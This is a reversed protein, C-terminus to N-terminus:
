LLNEDLKRKALNMKYYRINKKWVTFNKWKRYRQFFQLKMIGDYLSYEHEFHELTTFDSEGQSVRTIGTQSLTFFESRDIEAPKAPELHYPNECSRKLYQFGGEFLVSYNFIPHMYMKSLFSSKSPFLILNRLSKEDIGTFMTQRAQCLESRLAPSLKACETIDYIRKQQALKVDEVMNCVRERGSRTRIPKKNRPPRPLVTVTATDLQRSPAKAMHRPILGRTTRAVSRRGDKIGVYGMRVSNSGNERELASNSSILPSYLVRSFLARSEDPMKMFKATKILSRETGPASPLRISSLKKARKSEDTM